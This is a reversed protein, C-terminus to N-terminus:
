VCSGEKVREQGRGGALHAPLPSIAVDLRALRCGGESGGRGVVGREMRGRGAMAENVRIGEELGPSYVLAM